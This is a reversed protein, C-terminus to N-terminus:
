EWMNKAINWKQTTEKRGGIAGEQEAWTQQVKENSLPKEVLRQKMDGNEYYSITAMYVTEWSKAKPLFEKKIEQTLKGNTYNKEHIEGKTQAGKASFANDQISSQTLEGQANWERKEDTLSKGRAKSVVTVWQNQKKGDAHYATTREISNSANEDRELTPRGEKDKNVTKLSVTDWGLAHQMNGFGKDIKRTLTNAELSFTCLALMSAALVGKLGLSLMPTKTM